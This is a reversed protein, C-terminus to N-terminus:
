RSNKVHTEKNKITQIISRTTKTPDDAHSIVSSVAIGAIGTQFLANLDEPQLGGVAVIPVNLKKQRLHNLIQQYGQLGLVPALNKKTSTHRFPGLGIYDVGRNALDIIDELTNATGGIISEPGLLERAKDPDMDNKGLHVGDAQTKIAVDVQDNIIFTAGYERCIAKVQYAEELFNTYTYEKLRLQIWQCGANCVKEAQSTISHQSWENTIYQLRFEEPKFKNTYTIM